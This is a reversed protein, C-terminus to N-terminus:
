IPAVAFLDEPVGRKSTSASRQNSSAFRASSKILRATVTRKIGVAGGCGIGAAALEAADNAAGNLCM